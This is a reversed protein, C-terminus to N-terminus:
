TRDTGQPILPGTVETLRGHVTQVDVRKPHVPQVRIAFGRTPNVFVSCNRSGGCPIRM